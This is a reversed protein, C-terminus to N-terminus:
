RLEHIVDSLERRSTREPVEDEYGFPFIAIPILGSPLQMTEAIKKPDFAGIWVGGLGVATVALMAFTCAITTDELPYTEGGYQCRGPNSCFVLMEPASGIYAQDWTANAIATRKEASGVRYVEFAQFNGASPARNIAELICQLKEREVPRSQWKRISQRKQILEFFDM